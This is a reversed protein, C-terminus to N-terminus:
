CGETGSRSRMLNLSAVAANQIFALDRSPGRRSVKKSRAAAAAPARGCRLLAQHLSPALGPRSSQGSRRLRGNGMFGKTFHTQAASDESSQPNKKKRLQVEQTCLESIRQQLHLSLNVLQWHNQAAIKKIIETIVTWCYLAPDCVHAGHHCALPEALYRSLM